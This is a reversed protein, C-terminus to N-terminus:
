VEYVDKFDVASELDKGSMSHRQLFLVTFM